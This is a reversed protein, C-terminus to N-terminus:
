TSKDAKSSQLLAARRISLSISVFPAEMNEGSDTISVIMKINIGRARCLYLCVSTHGCLCDSHRVPTRARVCVCACACVCVCVCVCARARARVCVFVCVAVPNNSIKKLMIVSLTM